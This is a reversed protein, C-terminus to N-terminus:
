FVGLNALIRRSGDVHAKEVLQPIVGDGARPRLVTEALESLVLGGSGSRDGALTRRQVRGRENSIRFLYNM